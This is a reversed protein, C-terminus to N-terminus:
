PRWGSSFLLSASACGTAARQKEIPLSLRELPELVKADSFGELRKEAFAELTLQETGTSKISLSVLRWPESRRRAIARVADVTQQHASRAEHGHETGLYRVASEAVDLGEAVARLYVFHHLGTTQVFRRKGFSRM